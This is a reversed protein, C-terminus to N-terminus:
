MIPKGPGAGGPFQWGMHTVTDVVSCALEAVHAQVQKLYALDIATDFKQKQRNIFLPVSAGNVDPTRWSGHCLVNRVVTAKKIDEVLEDINTTTTAPNDRAAKGYSEALNWLQDTLARELQPLWAQYAADIEEASYNRTATFAFIAKGLVEELFGFTAVTRGLQEWFQPSHRHTPFNAPLNDRDIISRNVDDDNM